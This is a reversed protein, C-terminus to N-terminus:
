APTSPPPSALRTPQYIYSSPHICSAKRWSPSPRHFASSTLPKSPSCSGRAQELPVTMRLRQSSVVAVFTPNWLFRPEIKGEKKIRERETVGRQAPARIPLRPRIFPIAIGCLVLSMLAMIRLTWRAGVRPLLQNLILPFVFSRALRWVILEMNALLRSLSSPGPEGAWDQVPLSPAAQSLEARASGNRFSHLVTTPRCAESSLVHVYTFM